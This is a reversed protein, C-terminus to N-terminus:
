LNYILLGVPFGVLVGDIRDLFGGHGPLLDGTDKVNANRKVLSILKLM